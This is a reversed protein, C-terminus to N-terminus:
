RRGACARTRGAASARRSARGSGRSPGRRPRAARARAARDDAQEGPERSAGPRSWSNLADEAGVQGVAAGDELRAGDPHRQQGPVATVTARRAQQRRDAGGAHRRDRRQALADRQALARGRRAARRPAAHDDPSRTTAAREDIPEGLARRRRAPITAIAIARRRERHTRRPARRAAPSRPLAPPRARRPQEGAQTAQRPM